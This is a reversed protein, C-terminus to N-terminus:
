LAGIERLRRKLADKAKQESRYEHQSYRCGDSDAICWRYLGSPGRFITVTLGRWKRWLNGKKSRQWKTTPRRKTKTTM